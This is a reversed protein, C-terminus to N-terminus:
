DKVFANMISMSRKSIGMEPHVQKLVKFIFFSYGSYNSKRTKPKVVANQTPEQKSNSKKGRKNTTNKKSPAMQNYNIHKIERM